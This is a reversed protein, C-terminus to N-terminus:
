LGVEDAQTEAPTAPPEPLPQWHTPQNRKLWPTGDIREMIFSVWYGREAPNTSSWYVVDVRGSPNKKSPPFYALVRDEKPATAIDQWAGGTWPAEPTPSLARTNWYRVADEPSVGTESPADLGCNSCAVWSMDAHVSTTLKVKDSGCFPCPALKVGDVDTM